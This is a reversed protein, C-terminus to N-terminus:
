LRNCQGRAGGGELSLTPKSRLRKRWISAERFLRLSEKLHKEPFNREEGLYVKRVRLEY